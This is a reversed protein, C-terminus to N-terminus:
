RITGCSIQDDAIKKERIDDFLLVFAVLSIKQPYFTFNEPLQHYKLPKERVLQIKINGVNPSSAYERQSTMRNTWHPLRTGTRNDTKHSVQRDNVAPLTSVLFHNKWTFKGPKDM